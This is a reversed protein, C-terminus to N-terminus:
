FIISHFCRTCFNRQNSASVVYFFGRPSSMSIEDIKFTSDVDFQHWLKWTSEGKLISRIEEFKGRAIEVDFRHIILSSTDMPNNSYMLSNYMSIVLDLDKANEADTNNIKNICDTFSAWNKLVMEEDIDDASANEDVTNAVSSFYTHM